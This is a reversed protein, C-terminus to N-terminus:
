QSKLLRIIGFDSRKKSINKMLKDMVSVRLSGGQLLYLVLCAKQLLLLLIRLYMGDEEVEHIEAGSMLEWM